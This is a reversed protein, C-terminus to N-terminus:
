AAGTGFVSGLLNIALKVAVQLEALTMLLMVSIAAVLVASFLM